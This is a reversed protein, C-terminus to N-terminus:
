ATFGSGIRNADGNLGQQVYYVHQGIKPAAVPAFIHHTHAIPDAPKGGPLKASDVNQQWVQENNNWEGGFWEIFRAFDRKLADGAAPTSQAWVPASATLALCFVNAVLHRLSQRSSNFM